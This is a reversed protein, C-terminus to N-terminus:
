DLINEICEKIKSIASKNLVGVQKGFRSNDVARLQDILVDSDSKLGTEKKKIHVRLVHASKHVKSTIPCVLTSPHVNNLLDTQVVVVPRKKGPESKYRPNLDAIYVRWKKLIIKDKM